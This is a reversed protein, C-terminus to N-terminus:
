NPVTHSVATTGRLRVQSSFCAAVDENAKACPEPMPVSHVRERSFNPMAASMCACVHLLISFRHQFINAAKLRSHPGFALGQHAGSGPHSLKLTFYVNASTKM